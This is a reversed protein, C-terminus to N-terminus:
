IHKVASEQETEERCSPCLGSRIPFGVPFSITVIATELSFSEIKINTVTEIKTGNVIVELIPGLTGNAIDAFEIVNIRNINEIFKKMKGCGKPM